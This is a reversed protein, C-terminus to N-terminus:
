HVSTPFAATVANGREISTRRQKALRIAPVYDKNGKKIFGCVFVLTRGDPRVYFLLRPQLNGMKAILEWIGDGGQLRKAVRPGVLVPGRELLEAMSILIEDWLDSDCSDARFRSVVDKLQLAIWRDPM